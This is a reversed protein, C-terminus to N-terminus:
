RLLTGPPPWICTPHELCYALKYLMNLWADGWGWTRWTKIQGWSQEQQGGAQDM